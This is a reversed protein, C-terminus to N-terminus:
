TQGVEPYLSKALNALYTIDIQDPTEPAAAAPGLSELRGNRAPQTAAKAVIAKALSRGTERAATLDGKVAATEVQAATATGIASDARHQAQQARTEAATAQARHVERGFLWGVAAFVIAELGNYLYMFRGWRLEEMGINQVLFTVFVGLAVLVGLTVAIRTINM